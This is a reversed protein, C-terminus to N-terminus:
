PFARLRKTVGQLEKVLIAMTESRTGHFGFVFVFFTVAFSTCQGTTFDALGQHGASERKPKPAPPRKGIQCPTPPNANLEGDYPLYIGPCYLPLGGGMGSCQASASGLCGLCPSARQTENERISSARVCGRALRGRRHTPPHHQASSCASCHGQICSMAFRVAMRRHRPHTCRPHPQWVM